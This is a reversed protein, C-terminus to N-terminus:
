NKGTIPLTSQCIKIDKAIQGQLEKLSTFKQEKRIFDIFEVQMKKHYINQKFNFIHTELLKNKGDITPRNGINSIADFNGIGDINAKTKYVGNLLPPANRITLNATPFGIEGGLKAGPQIKGEISYYRGLMKSALVVDAKNLAKRINTSSIIVGGHSKAEMINLSYDLGYDSRYKDLLKGNGSKDRGFCFDYGITIHKMNLEQLLIDRLFAEGTKQMIHSFNLLIFKQVGLKAFIKAKQKFSTIFELQTKPKFFTLPHPYIGIVVSTLRNERAKNVIHKIIKQHGLHVGDFNGITIASAFNSAYDQRPPPTLNEYQRIIQM